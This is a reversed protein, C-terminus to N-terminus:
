SWVGYDPWTFPLVKRENLQSYMCTCTCQLVCTCQVHFICTAWWTLSMKQLDQVCRFLIYLVTPLSVMHWNPWLIVAPNARVTAGLTELQSAIASSRNQRSDISRVEVYVIVGTCLSLLCIYTYICMYSFVCVHVHVNYMCLSLPFAWARVYMYMYM